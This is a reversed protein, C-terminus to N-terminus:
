QYKHTNLIRWVTLPKTPIDAKSVAIVNVYDTIKGYKKELVPLAADTYHTPVIVAPNLQEILKFGKESALRMSSWNNEFQMFAIDIKGIEKLQEKTLKDQGIDGMHAIRLGNVEFVIIVNTTGLVNSQHASLVTYIHFDQTKIDAKTYSIKQCEYSGTYKPDVHDMHGHTSVIAAPNLEVLSRPPMETPDVIVTEGEVSTIAYTNYPYATSGSVTQIQVKGTTNGVIPLVLQPKAPAPPAKVTKASCGAFVLALSLVIMMIGNKM